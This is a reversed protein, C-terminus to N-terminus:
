AATGALEQDITCEYKNMQEGSFCRSEHRTVSRFRTTLSTVLAVYYSYLYQGLVYLYQLFISLYL